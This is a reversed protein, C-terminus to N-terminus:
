LVMSFLLTANLGAGDVGSGHIKYQQNLLNEVGLTLQGGQFPRIGARLNLVTWGPTGKCDALVKGPNAPDECIRLDDQDSSSLRDQRLAWLIQAEAFVFHKWPDDFLLSASGSLPPVRTAAATKGDKDTVDGKVYATAAKLRLGSWAKTELRAEFGKYEASGANIRKYAKQTGLVTPDIGLDAIEQANLEGRYISDELWTKYVAGGLTGLATHLKSGFELTNSTMPKLDANPVEYDKGTNGMVTTEQLNPARFGQSWDVYVHLLDSYLYSLGAAGIVGQFDFDVDGYGPVEPASAAIHTFRGGFSARLRHQATLPQTYTARAFAALSLYNSDQSFNGRDGDKWAWADKAAAATTQSSVLDLYGEAGAQTLLRDGLLSGEWTAFFGPTQVSDTAKSRSTLGALERQVCATYDVITKPDTDTYLCKYVSTVERSYHHSLNVQLNRGLGTGKRSLRLYSLLDQNDYITFEGKGLKDSRGADDIAGFISTGTLVWSDPLKYSAKVRGGARNLSSLVQTDGDGNTLDGLMAGSLSILAAAKDGVFSGEVFGGASKAATGGRGVFRGGFPAFAGARPDSTLAQIVGGIADSGYLVSGPGHLVEVRSMMLPDLLSLYQLPGTRWTAQNFRVGDVLVLNEIGIQGRIIPAGAGANTKQVFFGEGALADPLSDREARLLEEGSLVEVNRATLFNTSESRDASVVVEEMTDSATLPANTAPAEPAAGFLAFLILIPTSLLM